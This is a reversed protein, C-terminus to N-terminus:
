ILFIFVLLAGCISLSRWLRLSSDIHRQHGQAFEELRAVIFDLRELQHELSVSGPIEGAQVLLPYIELNRVPSEELALHYAEQFRRGPMNRSARVAFDLERYRPFRVMRQLIEGPSAHTDALLCRFESWFAASNRYLSQSSLKAHILSFGFGLVSLSLCLAGMFRM